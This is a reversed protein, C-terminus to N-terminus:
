GEHDEGGKRAAAEDFADAIMKLADMHGTAYQYLDNMGLAGATKKTEEDERILVRLVAAVKAARNVM